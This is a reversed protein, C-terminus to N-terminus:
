YRVTAPVGGLKKQQVLVAPVFTIGGYRPKIQLLQLKKSATVVPPELVANSAVTEPEVTSSVRM